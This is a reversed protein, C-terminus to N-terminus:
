ILIWGKQTYRDSFLKEVRVDYNLRLERKTASVVEGTTKRVNYITPDRPKVGRNKPDSFCSIFSAPRKKGKRDLSWQAKTEASHSKDKMGRPHRNRLLDLLWVPNVDTCSFKTSTQKAGNLCLPHDGWAAHLAIELALAEQKSPMVSIIEKTLNHPEFEILYKYRQSKKGKGKISGLYNKTNEPTKNKAYKSGIYFEGTVNHQVKYVYPM